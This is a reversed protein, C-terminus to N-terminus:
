ACSSVAAGCNGLAVCEPAYQGTRECLESKTAPPWHPAQPAPRRPPNLVLFVLLHTSSKTVSPKAWSFGVCRRLMYLVALTDRQRKHGKTGDAVTGHTRHTEHTGGEEGSRRVSVDIVLEARGDGVM